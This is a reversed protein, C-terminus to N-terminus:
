TQLKNCQYEADDRSERIRYWYTHEVAHKGSVDHYHTVRVMWWGQKEEIEPNPKEKFLADPCLRGFKLLAYFLAEDKDLSYRVIM